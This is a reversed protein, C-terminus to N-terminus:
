DSIKTDADLYIVEGDKRGLKIKGSLALEYLTKSIAYDEYLSIYDSVEEETFATHTAGYELILETTDKDSLPLARLAM